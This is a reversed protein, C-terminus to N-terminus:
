YRLNDIVAKVSDDVTAIEDIIALQMMEVVTNADRRTTPELSAIFREADERTNMMWLVDAIARQRKNLGQIQVTM